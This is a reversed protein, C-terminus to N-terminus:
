SRVRLPTKPQRETYDPAGQIRYVLYLFAFAKKHAFNERIANEFCDRAAVLEGRIVELEGLHFWVGSRLDRPLNEELLGLFQLRAEKFRMSRRAESGKRYQRYLEATDPPEAEIEERMTEFYRAPRTALCEQCDQPQRQDPQCFMLYRLYRFPFSNWFAKAGTDDPMHPMDLSGCCVKPPVDLGSFILTNDVYSCPTTAEELKEYENFSVELGKRRWHDATGNLFSRCAEYNEAFSADYVKKVLNGSADRNVSMPFLVVHEVGISHARTFLSNMQELNELNVTIHLELHPTKSSQEQKVQQVLEIKEWLNESYEPRGSGHGVATDGEFSIQLCDLKRNMLEGLRRRTLGVGSTTVLTYKDIGKELFENLYPSDLTEGVGVFCWHTAEEIWPLIDEWSKPSLFDRGDYPQPDIHFGANCMDCGINCTYSPSIAFHTPYPATLETFVDPRHAAQKLLTRLPDVNEEVYEVARLADPLRDNLILNLLEKETITQQTTQLM